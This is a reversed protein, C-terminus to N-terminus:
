IPRRSAFAGFIGFIGNLRSAVEDVAAAINIANAGARKGFADFSIL